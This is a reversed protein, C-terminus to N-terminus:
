RGSRGSATATATPGDDSSLVETLRSVTDLTGLQQLLDLSREVAAPALAISACDRYKDALEASGLVEGGRPDGRAYSVRRAVTGSGRLHVVVEVADATGPAAGAVPVAVPRVRGIFELVEPRRVAADTFTAIRLERDFLAAAVVYQMSFKAELGTMPRPYTMPGVRGESDVQGPPMRVEIRAVEAPQLDHALVLHLVADAARHGRNCCPYKKVAIGPSTVQWCEGLDATAILDGDGPSYVATFGTAPALADNAATFGRRSLLAALLGARAANGAHLPKAMTGFNLRLGSASSAAVGLAAGVQPGSLGLVRSAAVAAGLVGLTATSHFGQTAHSAGLSRGIRGAVELGLVYGDLLEAGTAGALEAAALAAAVIPASPHGRFSAHTDDYDLAHAATGNILAADLPSARGGSGLLTAHGKGDGATVTTRVIETCRERAGALAVGTTDLVARGAAARAATPIAAAPFASVFEALAGTVSSDGTM